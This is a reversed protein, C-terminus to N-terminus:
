PILICEVGLRKATEFEELVGEKIEGVFISVGNLKKINELMYTRDWVLGLEEGSVGNWCIVDDCLMDLMDIIETSFGKEKIVREQLFCHHMVTRIEGDSEDDDFQGDYNESQEWARIKKEIEECTQGKITFHISFDYKKM